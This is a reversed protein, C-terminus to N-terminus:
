VRFVLLPGRARKKSARGKDNRRFCSDLLRLTPSARIIADRLSEMIKCKSSQMKFERM